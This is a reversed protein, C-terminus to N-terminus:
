VKGAFEQLIPCDPRDDGKCCDSLQSLVQVVSQLEAVKKNLEAIHQSVTRKVEASTRNKNKWLSLLKKIEHTSFGLDRTRKIFRLTHLDREQYLRYGADSRAVVTLLGIEEYHRIMKAHVGTKKSVETIQYTKM